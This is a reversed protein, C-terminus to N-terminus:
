RTAFPFSLQPDYLEKRVARNARVLVPTILIVGFVTWAIQVYIWVDNANGRVLTHFGLINMGTSSVLLCALFRALLLKSHFPTWRLNCFRESFIWWFTSIYLPLPLLILLQGILRLNYDLILQRM